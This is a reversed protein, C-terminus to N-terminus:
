PTPEKPVTLDENDDFNPRITFPKSYYWINEPYTKTKLNGTDWKGNKNTDYIVRVRYKTTPFNKYSVIGTKTVVNSQLVTVNDSSLLQIVYTKGTDPLVVRLNLEGYNEPKDLHFKKNSLLNRNGYIDTFTGMNFSISYNKDDKWPYKVSFAKPNEPNKTLKLDSSVDISDEMLIVRTPDVSTVPYSTFVNLDTGPKLREDSGVNYGLQLVHKYTDNKRRRLTLTDLPKGNSLFSVKVSDFAMSTLYITTTDSTKNYNVQKIADLTPDLIKVGINPISKNFTFFLKGDDDIRRDIPRLKAPIQKFLNLHINATDKTLHVPSKLFAILEDENDYIKNVTTEKLAYLTYDGPRLNGLKFNGSTDTTTYVAPKKKGFMASDQKLPFLLVTVDKEKIQTLTNIVNGSISLSDIKPGTSFVYTFNKLVNGENVDAIAKGFNIVYTTNKALTDKPNFKIFLSKSRTYIEPFKEINPTITIETYQNNLRFYEDFDLQIIKASFNRTPNEPTAKLLKPPTRDRPGGQPRQINACGNLVLFAILVMFFQFLFPPKKNLTM